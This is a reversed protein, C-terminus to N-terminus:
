NKCCDIIYDVASEIFDFVMINKQEAIDHLYTRGRNLDKIEGEAFTENGSIKKIVVIVQRGLGIYYAAEIMSAIARTENDIVFLLYKAHDKQYNETVVLDPTWDDVQPNYYDIRHKELMPIAIEKRWTTPNCSGGLFVTCGPVPRPTIKSSSSGMKLKSIM